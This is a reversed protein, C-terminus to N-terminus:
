SPITLPPGVIEIGHQRALEIQSKDNFDTYTHPARMPSVLRFWAEMKNAPAFSILLRGQDGVFAWAHPIKRPALLSDGPGLEFLETGVELIYSGEIVYLYEEEDYYFHRPPGGKKHNNQEIVFLNGGTEGTLVKFTTASIGVSHEENLRDQGSLVKTTKLGTTKEETWAPFPIQCTVGSVLAARLLVRRDM